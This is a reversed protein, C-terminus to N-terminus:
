IFKREPIKTQLVNIGKVIYQGSIEVPENKEYFYAFGKRYLISDAYRNM